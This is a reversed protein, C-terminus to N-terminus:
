ERTIFEDLNMLVRATRAWAASPNTKKQAALYRLVRDREADTPPRAFCLQFAYGVRGADDDPGEARVRKGLADAFEVFIPDNAMHLAQLPTNSRIRRTCATQADAGDFTTLLHHQSQRWIYTYMGRRYRNPGKSEPWPHKSQTFSFVGAPQPPYVGPGGITETLLGSASLAADRIIEADLRLRHQRGLLRNQPDKARLDARERSAQRYTASTVILRHLKKMSWGRERFEVALWDLLEPHTPPSGQMGFDNETDVIGLGFFHQWHRNVTVRATLPNEPSVLWKAL